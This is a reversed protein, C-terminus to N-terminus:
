ELIREFYGIAEPSAYDQAGTIVGKVLGDRGIIISVPIAMVNYSRMVKGWRDILVTSSLGHEKAFPRAREVSDEAVAVVEFGRDKFRASLRELAPFEVKCPECWSAWFHLLVVRGQFEDLSRQGGAIDELTFGPARAGAAEQVFFGASAARAAGYPAALIVLFAIFSFFGHLPRM